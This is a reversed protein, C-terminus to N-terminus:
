NLLLRSSVSIGVDTMPISLSHSIEIEQNNFHIEPFMFNGYKALSSDLKDIYDSKHFTTDLLLLANKYILVRSYSEFVKFRNLGYMEVYKSPVIITKSSDFDLKLQIRFTKGGQVISTDIFVKRTYDSTDADHTVSESSDSKIKTGKSESDNANRYLVPVKSENQCSEVIVICIVVLLLQSKM